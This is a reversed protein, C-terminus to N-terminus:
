TIPASQRSRRRQTGPGSPPCIMEFFRGFWFSPLAGLRKFGHTELSKWEDGRAFDFPQIEGRLM